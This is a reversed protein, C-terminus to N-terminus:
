RRRILSVRIPDGMFKAEEKKATKGNTPKKKNSRWEVDRIQFIDSTVLKLSLSLSFFFLKYSM